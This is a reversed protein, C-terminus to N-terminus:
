LDLEKKRFVLLSVLFAAGIYLAAGLVLTMFGGGTLMMDTVARGAFGDIYYDAIRLNHFLVLSKSLDMAFPLIVTLLLMFFTAFASNDTLYLVVAAIPACCMIMYAGSMVFLCMLKIEQGSMGAGSVLGMILAFLLFVLYVIATMITSDIIKAAIVKTRSVGRGIVPKMSGARFEDVYIGAFLAMGILLVGTNRAMNGQRFAYVTGNWLHIRDWVTMGAAMLFVIAIVLLFSKKQLIRRLDAKILNIM